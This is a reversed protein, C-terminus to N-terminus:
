NFRMERYYQAEYVSKDVQQRVSDTDLKWRRLNPNFNM